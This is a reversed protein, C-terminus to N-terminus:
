KHSEREGLKALVVNYKNQLDKQENVLTEYKKNLNTISNNQENYKKEDEKSRINVETLKELPNRELDNVIEEFTNNLSEVANIATKLQEATAM